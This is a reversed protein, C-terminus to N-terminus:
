VPFFIVQKNGNANNSTSVLPIDLQLSGIVSPLINAM